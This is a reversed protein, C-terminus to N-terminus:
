LGNKRRLVRGQVTGRYVNDIVTIKGNVLVYKIGENKLAPERYTARDSVTEPDFIVVDADFGERLLGKGRLGAKRATLSTMKRIADELRLVKKERVYRGLIRPFTGMSRPHAGYRPNIIGGDTGIMTYPHAMIREMDEEGMLFYAAGANTDSDRILQLLADYPDMGQERAYETVRKGNAAPVNPANLILTGELGCGLTLNEWGTGPKRIDAKIQECVDRDNLRELLKETGGEHYWPPIAARLGTAGAEYPYQDVSVPIGEDNAEEILRLTEVSKGWNERGAVKHHSIIVPVMSERGIRIAERTANVVDHSENRIHSCYVGGYGAVVKCLEIIEETPTYVGPPYILGTTMGLAGSEMAEHVYGKMQELEDKSAPRNEFGMVAIRITGHGVFFAMNTGLPLQGAEDLFKGFTTFSAWRKLFESDRGIFGSYKVLQSFYRASVPAPSVGCMGAVGTTVGQEVMNYVSPDRFVQRDSHEHMDIFGPAVVLGDADISDGSSCSDIRGIHEIKGDAIGIDAKHWPNGSGDVIKGNRIVLDFKRM